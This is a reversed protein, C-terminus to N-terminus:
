VHARGIEPREESLPAAQLHDDMSIRPLEQSVGIDPLSIARRKRPTPRGTTAAAASAAPVAAVPAAEVEPVVLRRGAPRQAQQGDLPDPIHGLGAPAAGASGTLPRQGERLSVNPDDTPAPVAARPVATPPEIIPSPGGPVADVAPVATPIAAAPAAIPAPVETVPPTSVPAPLEEVAAVEGTARAVPELAASQSAAQVAADPIVGTPMAGAAESAAQVSARMTRVRESLKEAATKQAEERAAIEEEATALAAAYRSRQVPKEVAPKKAQEQGKKFWDPVSPEAPAPIFPAEVPEEAELVALGASVAASAAESATAAAAAAAPAAGEAPSATSPVEEVVANEGAPKGSLAAVAAKAAALRQSASEMSADLDGGVPADYVLEAGEPVLGASRAAEEGHIFGEDMDPLDRAAAVRAAVEMMVAVGSANCNAGENYASVKEVVFAIVPLAAVVMMIGLVVNFAILATDQPAMIMRVLLVVPMLVLLAFEVWYLAPLVSITANNLDRRVKGSDYNAVLIVKRRRAARNASKMPVYQAVVNQSVGRNLFRSLVPKGFIEAAMLAACLLAIVMAPVTVVSFITAVLTAVM